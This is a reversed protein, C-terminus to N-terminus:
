EKSATRAEAPSVRESRLTSATPLAPMVWNIIAEDSSAMMDVGSQLAIMSAAPTGKVKKGM